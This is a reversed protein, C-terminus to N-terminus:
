ILQPLNAHAERLRKNVCHTYVQTSTISRHGMFEQVIRLDVGQNLLDTAFSHRITHPHVGEFGAASARRAVMMEAARVKIPFLRSEDAPLRDLWSAVEKLAWPAFFVIRQWGGKGIISMEFPDDALEKIKLFDASNLALAESIRLGTSFLVSLLARDRLARYGVPPISTILHKVEDRELFKINRKQNAM